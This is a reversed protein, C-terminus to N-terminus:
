AYYYTIAGAAAGVAAEIIVMIVRVWWCTFKSFYLSLTIILLIVAEIAAIIGIKELLKM